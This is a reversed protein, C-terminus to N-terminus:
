AARTGGAGDSKRGDINIFVNRLIKIGQGAAQDGIFRRVYIGGGTFTSNEVRLNRFDEAKIAMEAARGAINPTLSIGRTNRVTLNIGFGVILVGKGRINANEIIVPETTQISVAPGTDPSEWNGSYTGGKSIVM